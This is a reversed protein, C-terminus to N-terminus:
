RISIRGWYRRALRSTLYLWLLPDNQTAPTFLVANELVAAEGQLESCFPIVAPPPQLALKEGREEKQKTAMPVQTQPPIGLAEAILLQRQHSLDIDKRARQDSRYTPPPPHLPHTMADSLHKNSVSALCQFPGVHFPKM